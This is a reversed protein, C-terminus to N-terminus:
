DKPAETLVPLEFFFRAGEHYSTDLWCRANLREAITRCINLGLGNGQKFDDLKEFRKFVSEAKELPIGTGTDTVSFRVNMPQHNSDYQISYTLRISGKATYKCSNTFYNILVQEVRRTDTWLALDTKDEPLDFSMQVNEPTRYKVTTYATMCIHQVTTKSYQMKYKGSSLNSLDLIDNILTTMLDSSSSILDSFQKKSDEDLTIKSDALVDSFGVIANLPTRIEHSMNQIFVMKMASAEDAEQRAKLAKEKMMKVSDLAAQAKEKEAKLLKINKKRMYISYCILCIVIFAIVIIMKVIIIRANEKRENEKLVEKTNENKIKEIEANQKAIIYNQRTRRIQLEKEAANKQLQEKSNKAEMIKNRIHLSDNKWKLLKMYQKRRELDVQVSINKQQRRNITIFLRKALKHTTGIYGIAEIYRGQEILEDSYQGRKYLYEFMTDPIMIEYASASISVFLLLAV